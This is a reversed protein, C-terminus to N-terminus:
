RSRDSQTFLHRRTLRILSTHSEAYLKYSTMIISLSIVHFLMCKHVCFQTFAFITSATVFTLICEVQISNLKFKIIAQSPVTNGTSYLANCAIDYNDLEYIQILLFIKASISRLLLCKISFQHKQFTENKTQYKKQKANNRSFINNCMCIYKCSLEHMRICEIEGNSFRYIYIYIYPFTSFRM